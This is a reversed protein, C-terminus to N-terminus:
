EWRTYVGSSPSQGRWKPNSPHSHVRSEVRRSGRPPAPVLRELVDPGFLDSEAYGWGGGLGIDACGSTLLPAALLTRLLLRRM